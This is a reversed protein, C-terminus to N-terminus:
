TSAPPQTALPLVMALWIVLLTPVVMSAGDAVVGYAASFGKQIWWNNNSPNQM